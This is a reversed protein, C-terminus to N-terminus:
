KIKVSKTNSWYSDITTGDYTKYCRLSFYYTTGSKLKSFTKSVTSNNTLKVEKANELNSNTSYKLIYGTALEDKNWTVKAKKSASETVSTIIPKKPRIQIKLTAQKAALYNNSEASKVKIKALGTGKIVVKGNKDVKAVNSDTSKYTIQEGKSTTAWKEFDPVGYPLNLYTYLLDIKKAAKEIKLKVKIPEPTVYNSSEAMSVTIEAKGVSKMTVKGTSGITVIKSDSTKYVLKNGSTVSAGLNFATDSYEKNIDKDAVTIKAEAKKITFSKTVSGSYKGKGKIKVKATGANTNNEYSLTYDTGYVLKEGTSVLKVEPSPKQAKGTYTKKSISDVKISNDNLETTIKGYAVDMDVSGKIGDVSGSSSFQWMGYDRSYGCYKNYRAVWVYYDSDLKSMDILNILYSYNSYVGATYGAEQIKQCFAKCIATKQTKSLNAKTTRECVSELDFMVPWEIWNKYPKLQEIVYEAEKEAEKENIANTFFYIGLEVGAAKANEVNKKFFSDESLVGTASGRYGSRVIAFDIGDAKAKQWDINGQWKSVDVGYYKTDNDFRKDHTIDKKSSPGAQYFSYMNSAYDRVYLPDDMLDTETEMSNVKTAAKINQTWGVGNSTVIMAASLSVAIIGRIKKMLNGGLFEVFNSCGSASYRYM